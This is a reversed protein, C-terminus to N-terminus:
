EKDQVKGNGKNDLTKRKGKGQDQRLTNLTKNQRTMDPTRKDHKIKDTMDKKRKDQGTKDKNTKDQRTNDQRAKDERTKGQGQDRVRVGFGFWISPTM